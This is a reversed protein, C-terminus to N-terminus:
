LNDGILEAAKKYGYSNFHERSKFLPYLNKFNPIKLMLDSHLDILNVNYSNVLKLFSKHNEKYDINNNYSM